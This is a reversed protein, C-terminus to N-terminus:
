EIDVSQKEKLIDETKYIWVYPQGNVVIVKEPTINENRVTKDLLEPKVNRQVQNIYIFVFDSEEWNKLNKVQGPLFVGTVKDYFSAVRLEKYHDYTRLFAAAQDLGEGWGVLFVRHQDREAKSPMIISTLANRYSAIYPHFKLVAQLQLLFMVLVTGCLWQQYKEKQTRLIAFLSLGNFVNVLLIAHLIYRGDQKKTYSFLLLVFLIFSLVYWLFKHIVDNKVRGRKQLQLLMYVVGIVFFVIHAISMRTLLYMPYYMKSSHQEKPASQNSSHEQNVGVDIGHTIKQIANNPEQWLAPYLLLITATLVILALGSKKLFFELSRSPQDFSKRCLFFACAFFPLLVLSTSKTLVALATFISAWVLNANSQRVFLFFGFFMIALVSFLAVLADMQFYRSHALFLPDILLFGMVLVAALYGGPDLNKRVLFGMLVIFLSTILVLPLKAFFLLRARDGDFNLISEGDFYNALAMASGSLWMLTVAPHGSQSVKNFEGESINKLFKESRTFWFSTDINAFTGVDHIRLFFAISFFLCLIIGFAISKKQQPTIIFM